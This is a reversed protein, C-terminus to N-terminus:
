RRGRRRTAAAKRTLARRMRGAAAPELGAELAIELAISGLMRYAAELPTGSRSGRRSDLERLAELHRGVTAADGRRVPGTLAAVPGVRRVNAVAGEVLPLLGRTAEKESWGAAMLLAVAERIVVDVYNAAFVAAAHYLVREEPGVRVPRAGLDRALSFLRRRLAADASDVAVTIGGFAGPPRPSSFSQLPHFSGVAHRPELPGLPSLDLAGSVHVFAVVAPPPPSARALAAATSGVADDPVALFVVAPGM